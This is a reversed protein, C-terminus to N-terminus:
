ATQSLSFITLIPASNGLNDGFYFYTDPKKPVGQIDCLCPKRVYNVESLLDPM